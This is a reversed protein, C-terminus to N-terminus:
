PEQHMIAYQKRFWENLTASLTFCSIQVFFDSSESNVTINLMTKLILNSYIESKCKLPRFKKKLTRFKLDVKQTM